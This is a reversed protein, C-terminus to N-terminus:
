RCKEAYKEIARTRSLLYDDVYLRGKAGSAPYFVDKFGYGGLDGVIVDGESPSHGGYWELLYYGQPGNAVFYDHCGSRAAAVVIQGPLKTQGRPAEGNSPNSPNSPRNRLPGSSLLEVTLAKGKIILKGQDPCIVVRPYYEYLYEYEFKVKWISGDDLRFIEDNNGMFPSPEHISGERCPEAQTSSPLLIAVIFISALFKWAMLRGGMAQRLKGTKYTLNPFAIPKQGPEFLLCAM